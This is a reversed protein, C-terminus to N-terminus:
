LNLVTDRLSVGVVRAAATTVRGQMRRARVNGGEVRHRSTELMENLRALVGRQEQLRLQRRSTLCWTGGCLQVKVARTREVVSRIPSRVWDGPKRNYMAAPAMVRCVPEVHIALPGFPARDNVVNLMGKLILQNGLGEHAVILAWCLSRLRSSQVGVAVGALQDTQHM